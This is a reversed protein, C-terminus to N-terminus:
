LHHTHAHMDHKHNVQRQLLLFSFYHILVIYHCYADKEHLYYKLNTCTSPFIVSSCWVKQSLHNIRIIWTIKLVLLNLKMPCTIELGLWYILAFMVYHHYLIHYKALGKPFHPFFIETLRQKGQINLIRHTPYPASFWVSLNQIPNQSTSICHLSVPKQLQTTSFKHM